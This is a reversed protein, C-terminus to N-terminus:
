VMSAAKQENCVETRTRATAPGAPRSMESAQCKQNWGNHQPPGTM